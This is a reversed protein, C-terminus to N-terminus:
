RCCGAVGVLCGGLDDARRDRPHAADPARRTALDTGLSADAWRLLATADATGVVLGVLAGIVGVALGQAAVERAAALATARHAHRSAARAGPSSRRSRTPRSSRPSTSTAVLLVSLVGIVLTSTDSAGFTPDAAFGRASIASRERRGFATSIAM